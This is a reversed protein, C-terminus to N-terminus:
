RDLAKSTFRKTPQASFGQLGLQPMATPYLGTNALSSAETSEPSPLFTTALYKQPIELVISQTSQVHIASISTAQPLQSLVKHIIFTSFAPNWGHLAHGLRMFYNQFNRKQSTKINHNTSLLSKSTLLPHMSTNGRRRANTYIRVYEITYTNCRVSAKRSARRVDCCHPM